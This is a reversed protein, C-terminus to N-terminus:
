LLACNLANMVAQQIEIKGNAVEMIQQDISNEVVLHHLVVPKSQGQRYVRANAQIYDQSSWTLDYWFVQATDAANCQLNLGIGGSMPHALLQMIKGGNWRAIDDSGQGLVVANPFRRQLAELSERYHYFILSPTNEDLIDGLMDLKAEHQRVAQGDEMYLFGSTFQRLKNSISAATAASITEEGAIEIVMTKAFKKYKAKTASDIQVTHVLRTLQPLTLYDEARLSFCIDKVADQIAQDKGPQVGWKYVVGTHRNREVPMMYKARFTTLSKGLRQGLDLIAVQSWLDSLGQPTPTGTLIVRRQFHPLWKKLAKFRKTSPDKFKSSEDVVLNDFKLLGCDCLWALNENNVVYVDADKQLNALRDSEKGLILSFRLHKLHEWKQAEQMWVSEAVKKPAIVLTRGKFHDAIITLTTTTKGLGPPLLLGIGPLGRALNIFHTQYPHLNSRNLM